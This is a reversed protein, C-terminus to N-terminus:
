WFFAARALNIKGRKFEHPPALGSIGKTKTVAFRHPYQDFAASSIEV